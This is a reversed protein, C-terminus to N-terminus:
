GIATLSVCVFWSMPWWWCCSSSCCFPSPWMKPLNSACFFVQVCIMLPGPWASCFIRLNWASAMPNPGNYPLSWKACLFCRWMLCQNPPIWKTKNSITIHVQIRDLWTTKTWGFSFTDFGISFQGCRVCACRVRVHNSNSWIFVHFKHRLHARSAFEAM